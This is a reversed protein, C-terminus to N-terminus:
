SAKESNREANRSWSDFSNRTVKEISQVLMQPPIADPEPIAGGAAAIQTAHVKM